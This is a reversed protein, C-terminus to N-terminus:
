PAPQVIVWQPTPYPIARLTTPTDRVYTGGPPRRFNHQHGPKIIVAGAPQPGGERLILKEGPKLDTAPDRTYTGAKSAPGRKFNHQHGEAVTIETDAM